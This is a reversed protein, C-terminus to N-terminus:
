SFTVSVTFAGAGFYSGQGARFTTGNITITNEFTTWNSVTDPQNPGLCHGPSLPQPLLILRSLLDQDLISFSLKGGSFLASIDAGPPIASRWVVGGNSRSGDWPINASGSGTSDPFNWNVSMTTANTITDALDIPVSVQNCEIGVCGEEEETPCPLTPKVNVTSTLSISGVNQTFVTNTNQTGTVYTNNNFVFSVGPAFSMSGGPPAGNIALQQIWQSIQPQFNPSPPQSLQSIVWNVNLSSLWAKVEAYVGSDMGAPNDIRLHYTINSNQLQWIGNQLIATASCKADVYVQVVFDGQSTREDCDEEASQASPPSSFFAIAGAVAAPLGALVNNLRQQAAQTISQQIVYGAPTGLYNSVACSHAKAVAQAQTSARSVGTAVVTGGGSKLSLSVTAEIVEDYLQVTVQNSIQTIERVRTKCALQIARAGTAIWAAYIAAIRARGIGAIILARVWFMVASAAAGGAVVINILIQM